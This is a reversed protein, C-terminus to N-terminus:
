ELKKKFKLNALTVMAASFLTLLGTEMALIELGVGKLYIGKLLTMFYRAPILYTILQLLQPMNSIAYVFGSLLFSPLFTLVMALQNALLQNKTVISILMGLSLAGTVFIFAVGFLLAVNGHLPVQFVFQGMLVALLVNFMGIALYPLLKGLILEQGKVPTSILQEMTGREWERAVTLSTLLAAIVMTIVAILGPIIYNKSEMDTNFWVRPRLELPLYPTRGGVRQIEEIAISRSYTLTVAEVYGIAIIATNSDSGDVILQVSVSRGSEIRQAFDTPIVLALLVQGSDIAREVERYNRAYGRISFYRSGDFHSIFEQSIKSNDQDWIVMPVNDVDLTLAYGFLVLMLIPIAIAMGLSRPDRIIHTFEKRAIAWIRLLKITSGRGVEEREREKGKEREGKGVQSLPLSPRFPRPHSSPTLDRNRASLLSVFVDELSPVIKKIRDAPYGRANLLNQVIASVKRSEGTTIHLGQGFLTVEKVGAVKEIEDIVDQPRECLVELIDEQIFETKLVQPTGVAILEGQHIFGIRHCYEAEDLYHTTVFVTVGKGSLEYILDWFQRRSIPDVGSTPEDLFLIPPEHLIACGLALRQKWGGSLIATQSHRHEKLGAMEMVWEKREKKKEPPIRYIGSYFTINEEVTLDEYLSFKQSMYGIHAKIKEAETRLDFGAVTGTGATPALIGCLMRITTSKGSGNPGLFGFIEGKAVEFSIRNVAIFSGFRKELDKVIVAKENKGTNM